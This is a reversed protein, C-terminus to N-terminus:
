GGTRRNPDRKSKGRAPDKGAQTMDGPQFLSQVGHEEARGPPSIVIRNESDREIVRGGAIEQRNCSEKSRAVLFASARTPDM